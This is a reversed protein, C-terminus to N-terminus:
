PVFRQIHGESVEFALISLRLFRLLVGVAAAQRQVYLAFRSLYALLACAERQVAVGLMQQIISFSLFSAASDYEHREM